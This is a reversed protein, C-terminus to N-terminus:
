RFRQAEFYGLQAQIHELFDVLRDMRDNELDADNESDSKDAKNKDKNKRREAKLRRQKDQYPLWNDLIETKKYNNWKHRSM